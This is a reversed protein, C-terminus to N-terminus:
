AAPFDKVVDSLCQLVEVTGEWLTTSRYPVNHRKCLAEVRPRISELNHRPVAPYLHHEIQVHLGGMFWGTLGLFDNEVNRTTIVQLEGYATRTTPSVVAMGNHGVGFSIALLLGCVTQAAIFYAVGMAFSSTLGFCLAVCGCYHLAITVKEATEYKLGPIEKAGVEKAMKERVAGENNEFFGVNFRYVFQASQLAWTIRAFFLIPFYLVAQYRLQWPLPKDSGLGLASLMGKSWALFPLTDIDPDGDHAGVASELLNPVAHHTNHKNKWWENSFGQYLNGVVLIAVENWFRSKFVQHHGFDHALWGCQQWFLALLFAGFFQGWVSGRQASSYTVWASLVCIATTSLFKWAYYLPSSLLLPFGTCIPAAPPV